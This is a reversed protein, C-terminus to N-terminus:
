QVQAVCSLSAMVILLKQVAVASYGSEANAVQSFGACCCLSLVAM